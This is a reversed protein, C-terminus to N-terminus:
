WRDRWLWAPGTECQFSWHTVFGFRFRPAAPASVEPRTGTQRPPRSGAAFSVRVQAGGRDSHECGRVAALQQKM